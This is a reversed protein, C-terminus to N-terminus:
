MMDQLAEIAANLEELDPTPVPDDTLTFDQKLTLVRRLSQELREQTIRGSKVADLLATRAAELNDAEHCILLQDCGAEVALVAAEGMGCSQSVAGMTLDDTFVIGEFGLTERLLGDVVAPSLSAPRKEDLRTMLIHGVMVAPAGDKIAARFPLLELEELQEVTKDVVPLGVHSDVATDGHGPFHKIVPITGTSKLGRVVPPVCSVVTAADAGFARKGIVTNEPNSWIDAVPAFNLNFGLSQCTRGLTEGLTRCVTERRAPDVAGFDLANPLSHIEPPTREVTGGEQDVSIFLPISGSNLAKLENILRVLKGASELNRQFLIIGGVKHTQIAAKADM